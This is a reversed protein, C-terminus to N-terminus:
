ILTVSLVSCGWSLTLFWDIKLHVKTKLLIQRKLHKLPVHFCNNKRQLNSKNTIVQFYNNKTQLNVLKILHGRGHQRFHGKQKFIAICKPCHYQNTKRSASTLPLIDCRCPLCVVSDQTVYHNRNLHVQKIHRLICYSCQFRVNYSCLKCHFHNM